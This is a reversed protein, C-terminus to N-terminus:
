LGVGGEILGAVLSALNAELSRTAGTWLVPGGLLIRQKGPLPVGPNSLGLSLPGSGGAYGEEAAEFM